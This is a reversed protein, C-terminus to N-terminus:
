REQLINNRMKAKLSMLKTNEQRQNKETNLFNDAVDTM